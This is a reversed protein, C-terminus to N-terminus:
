SRSQYEKLRLLAKQIEKPPTKQRKKIFGHLLLVTDKLLIAYVVRINDQGLIRIEWLHYGTLKKTHITVAELGYERIYELIRLIKSQQKTSLSDLFDSVPNQNTPSTYYVVKHKKPMRPYNYCYTLSIKRGRPKPIKENSIKM